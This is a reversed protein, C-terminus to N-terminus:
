YEGWVGPPPVVRRGDNSPRGVISFMMLEVVSSLHHMGVQQNSLYAQGDRTIMHFWVDMRSITHGM